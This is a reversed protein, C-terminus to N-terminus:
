MSRQWTERLGGGKGWFQMCRKSWRRAAAWGGEGAARIGDSCICMGQFASRAGQRPRRGRGVGCGLLESLCGQASSPREVSNIAGRLHTPSLRSGNICQEKADASTQGRRSGGVHGSGGEGLGRSGEVGKESQQDESIRRDRGSSTPIEFFCPLPLPTLCLDGEGAGSLSSWHRAAVFPLFRLAAGSGTM